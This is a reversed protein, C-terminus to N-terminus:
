YQPPYYNIQQQSANMEQGPVNSSYQSMRSVPYMSVNQQQAAQYQPTNPAAYMPNAQQAVYGAPARLTQQSQMQYNPQQTYRVNSQAIVDTQPMRMQGANQAQYFQANYNPSCNFPPQAPQAVYQNRGSTIQMRAAGHQGPYNSYNGHMVPQSAASNVQALCHQQTAMSRPGPTRMQQEMMSEQMLQQRADMQMQVQHMPAVMPDVQGISHLQQQHYPQGAALPAPQIHAASMMQQGGSGSPRRGRIMASIAQKGSSSQMPAMQAGTFNRSQYQTPPVATSASQVNGISWMQGQGYPPVAGSPGGTMAVQQPFYGYHATITPQGISLQRNQVMPPVSSLAVNSSVTVRSSSKRGRTSKRPRAKTTRPSQVQDSFESVLTGGSIAVSGNSKLRETTLKDSDSTENTCPVYHVQLTELFPDSRPEGPMPPRNFAHHHDHPLMRMMQEFLTEPQYDLRIGQFWSWKLGINERNYGEIIEWPNLKEKGIIQLGKRQTVESSSFGGRSGKQPQLGYEDCVIVDVMQRPIPLLQHVCRLSPMQRDGIEKKLKKIVNNYIRKCDENTREQGSFSFGASDPLLCSLLLVCLIDVCTYFLAQNKEETVIGYLLLQVMVLSWNELNANRCVTDFMGGILSLRLQLADLMESVIERDCLIYPDEKVRMVFEQIQKLLSSLLGERQDDQGRLCILVLSLFPQHALLSSSQAFLNRDRRAQCNELISVAAKLVRGQVFSPLRSILPAVLWYPAIEDFSLANLYANEDKDDSPEGFTLTAQPQFVEMCSKAITDVLHLSESQSNAVQKLLLQLDMQSVWLNMITLSDLVKSILEKKTTCSDFKKLLIESDSRTIMRLLRQAQTQNVLPNLLRKPDFLDTSHLFKRKTWEQRCILELLQIATSGIDSNGATNTDEEVFQKASRKTDFNEKSKLEQVKSDDLMLIAILLTLIADPVMGDVSSCILSLEGKTKAPLANKPGQYDFFLLIKGLLHLTLKASAEPGKEVKASGAHKWLPLLSPMAVHLIFDELRICMRSILTIALVTLPQYCQHDSVDINLLSDCSTQDQSSNFPCCLIKFVALWDANLNPCLATVDACFLVLNFLRETDGSLGCLAKVAVIAFAYCLNANEVLRQILNPEIVLDSEQFLVDLMIEQSVDALLGRLDNCSSPKTEVCLCRQICDRSNLYLDAHLSRIYSCCQYLDHLYVWVCREASFSNVVTKSKVYLLLSRWINCMVSELQIFYCHHKRMYGVMCVAYQLTLSNAGQFNREVIQAELKPLLCIVAEMFEVLSIFNSSEELLGLLFDFNELTPLCNSQGNIFSNFQVIGADCCCDMVAFQDYFVLNQIKRSLSCLSESDIIKRVRILGTTTLEASTKKSWLKNLEKTLQPVPFHLVNFYHKSLKPVRKSSCSDADSSIAKKDAFDIIRDFDLKSEDSDKFYNFDVNEIPKFHESFFNNSMLVAPQTNSVNEVASASSSCQNQLPYFVNAGNPILDGSSVLTSVYQDHSFIDSEILRSFLLILNTFPKIESSSCMEGLNPAQNHLYNFLSKQFPYRVQPMKKSLEQLHREFLRTVVAARYSGYRHPSVAWHCLFQVAISDMDVRIEKKESQFITKYLTDINNTENVYEFKFKDLCDLISLFHQIITSLGSHQCKNYSWHSEVARSRETVMETLRELEKKVFETSPDVFLPLDVPSCYLLDLPSGCLYAKGNEGTDECEMENWILATPCDILVSHVVNSLGLLVTRHFPCNLYDLTGEKMNESDNQLNDIKMASLVKCALYVLRRSLLVSMVFGDIFQLLVPVIMKLIGFSSAYIKEAFIDLLGNLLMEKDLLGEEFLHRTLKTTYQWHRYHCEFESNMPVELSLSFFEGLKSCLDRLYKMVLHTWDAFPDSMHKKKMKGCEQQQAIHANTMKLFWVVRVMPVNFEALTYLIEDKKNLFPFRKGLASLPKNGSLDKFWTDQGKPKAALHWISPEKFGSKKKYSDQLANIEAKKNVIANYSQTLKIFYDELNEDFRQSRLSEYENLLPPKYIYGQRVKEATLEDDPQGLRPRKLPKKEWAVTCSAM